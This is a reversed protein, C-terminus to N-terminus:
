FIVATCFGSQCACYGQGCDMTFENCGADCAFGDCVPAQSIPVCSSAHCCVDPVCDSDVTCQNGPCVGCDAPCSSCTEGESCTADGCVPPCVGCDAPCSSCTESGNCSADGCVPPCVGCDAACSSCTESGNCTADGCVPPCVGCDAPCTACTEGPQCVHNGCKKPTSLETAERVDYDSELDCDSELIGEMNGADAWCQDYAIRTVLGQAAAMQNGMATALGFLVATLKM